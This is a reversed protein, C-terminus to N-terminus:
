ELVSRKRRIIVIVTVVAIVAIGIILYLYYNSFFSIVKDIISEQNEKEQEAVRNKYDEVMKQFTPYDVEREYWMGCIPLDDGSIGECLPDTSYENYRPIKLNITRVEQNCETSYVKFKRQGNLENKVILIGDTFDSYTFTRNYTEDIIRFEESMGSIIIKMNGRPLPDGNDNLSYDRNGTYEEESTIDLESTIEINEAMQKLENIKTRDCEANVHPIFLFIFAITLIKKKM